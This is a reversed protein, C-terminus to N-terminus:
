SSSDNLRSIILSYRSKRRRPESMHANIKLNAPYDARGTRWYPNCETTIVIRGPTIESVYVRPSIRRKLSCATTERRRSQRSSNIPLTSSTDFTSPIRELIREANGPLFSTGDERTDRRARLYACLEACEHNELQNRSFAVRAARV